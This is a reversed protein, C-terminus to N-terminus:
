IPIGITLRTFPFTLVFPSPSPVWSSDLLDVGVGLISSFSLSLFSLFLSGNKLKSLLALRSPTQFLHTFVPLVSSLLPSVLREREKSFSFEKRTLSPTPNPDPDPLPLTPDTQYFQWGNLKSFSSSSLFGDNVTPRRSRSILHPQNWSSSYISPFPPTSVTYLLPCWKAKVSNHWLSSHIYDVKWAGFEETEREREREGRHSLRTSAASALRSALKSTSKRQNPQVRAANRRRSWWDRALLPGRVPLPFPNLVAM